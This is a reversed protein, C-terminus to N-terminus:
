AAGVAIPANAGSQPADVVPLGKFGLTDYSLGAFSRHTIALRAFVESPLFFTVQKGMAGLLDGLVLWSPRTEGPAQRAQTFRQV